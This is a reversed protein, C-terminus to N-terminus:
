LSPAFLAGRTVGGDVSPKEAQKQIDKGLPVGPMAGYNKCYATYVEDPTRDLGQLIPMLKDFAYEPKEVFHLFRHVQPLELGCTIAMELGTEGDLATDVAYGGKKLLHSLAEVLRKEDEVLLLKM